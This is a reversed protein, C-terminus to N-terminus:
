HRTGYNVEQESCLEMLEDYLDEKVREWTENAYMEYLRGPHDDRFAEWIWAAYEAELQPPVIEREFTPRRSCLWLILDGKVERSKIVDLGHYQWDPYTRTLSSLIDAGSAELLNM